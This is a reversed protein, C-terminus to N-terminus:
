RPLHPNNQFGQSRWKIKKIGDIYDRAIKRAEPLSSTYSDIIKLFYEERRTGKHRHKTITINYQNFGSPVKSYEIVFGKYREKKRITM